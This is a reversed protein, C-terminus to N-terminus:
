AIGIEDYIEVLQDGEARSSDLGGKLEIDISAPKDASSAPFGFTLGAENSASYLTIRFVKGGQEKQFRVVKPKIEVSPAGITAVKAAAPTYDIDFTIPDTTVAGASGATDVAICWDGNADKILFYDDGETLSTSGAQVNALTPANGNANQGDIRYTELSTWGAAVTQTQGTVPSAAQTTVNMLGDAFKALNEMLIQYITFKANAEMNKTYTMVDENKSGKVKVQEYSIAVSTDSDEPLVGVSALSAISDGILVTCGAPVHVGQYAM